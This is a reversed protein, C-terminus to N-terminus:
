SQPFTLISLNGDNHVIYLQDTIQDKHQKLCLIYLIEAKLNYYKMRSINQKSTTEGNWHPHEM